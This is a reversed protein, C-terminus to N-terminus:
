RCCRSLLKEGWEIARARQEPTITHMSEEPAAGHLKTAAYDYAYALVPDADVLIGNTYATALQTMANASGSESARALYAISREKYDQVMAPDRIMDTPSMNMAAVNPYLTQAALVGKDAAYRLWKIAEKSEKIEIGQCRDEEQSGFGSYLSGKTELLYCDMMLRSLVYAADPDGSKARALVDGISDAYKGVPAKFDAADIDPDVFPQGPAKRAPSAPVPAAKATRNAAQSRHEGSVDAALQVSASSSAPAVDPRRFLYATGIAGITVVAVALAMSRLSKVDM